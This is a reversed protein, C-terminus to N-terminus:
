FFIQEIIICLFAAIFLLLFEVIVAWLVCVGKNKTKFPYFVNWWGRYNFVIGIFIMQSAWLLFQEIHLAAGTIPVHETSIEMTFCIYTLEAYGITSVVMKGPTKSRFGVPAYSKIMQGSDKGINQHMDVTDIRKGFEPYIEYLKEILEEVSQYREKPDLSICKKVIDAMRGQILHDVPFKGTMIYNILVGLSYIDTRNDTQFFGFQEPAAYEATGMLVTDRKKGSQYTRAINFDIIKVNGESDLMVNEAKLDRCIIPPNSNHLFKLANCIELTIRVAEKEEIPWERVIDELTRGQIYEEIIILEEGEMICEYIMPIYRTYNEKLYEYISYLTVSIRKEVCINGNVSHRKLRINKEEGLTGLDQYLSLRYKEETEM